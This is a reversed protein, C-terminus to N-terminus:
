SIVEYYSFSGCGRCRQDEEITIDPVREGCFPCPVSKWSMKPPVTVCVRQYSLIDRGAKLIEDILPYMMTMSDFEPSHTYWARIIPFRKIKKADVYVRVGEVARKEAPRNITLAYKGIPMVQLRHNGFTSGTMVQVPDPVCRYTEAIVYVREHSQVGLLNLAYDVMFVGIFVGPAAIGHFKISRNFQDQLEAPIGYEDMCGRLDRVAPTVRPYQM